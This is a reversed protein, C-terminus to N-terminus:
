RFLLIFYGCILFLTDLIGYEGENLCVSTDGEVRLVQSLKKKKLPGTSEGRPELPVCLRM